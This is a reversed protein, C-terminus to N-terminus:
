NKEWKFHKTFNHLDIPFCELEEIPSTQFNFKKICPDLGDDMPGEEPPRGMKLFRQKQMLIRMKIDEGQKPNQWKRPADLM